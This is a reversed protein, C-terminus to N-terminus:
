PWLPLADLLQQISADQDPPRPKVHLLKQSHWDFRRGPQRFWRGCQHPAERAAAARRWVIPLCDARTRGATPAPRWNFSRSPRRCLPSWASTPRSGGRALVRFLLHCVGLARARRHAVTGQGDAVDPGWPRRDTARGGCVLLCFRRPPHRDPRGDDPGRASTLLKKVPLNYPHPQLMPVSVEGSKTDDITYGSGTLCFQPKHISSRDTGMLVINLITKFDDPATYRRQAFSTDHPLGTLLNTDTEVNETSNYDLVQEPLYLSLRPSGAIATGKVGPRGLRQSAKLHVLLGATVAIMGLAIFLIIGKQRNM